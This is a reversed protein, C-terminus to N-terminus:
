NDTDAFFYIFLLWLPIFFFLAQSDLDKNLKLFKYKDIKYFILKILM